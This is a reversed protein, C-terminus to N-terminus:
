TCPVGRRMKGARDPSEHGVRLVVAERREPLEGLGEVIRMLEGEHGGDDRHDLLIGREDELLGVRGLVDRRPVPRSRPDAVGLQGLDQVGGGVVEPAVLRLALLDGADLGSELGPNVRLRPLRRRGLGRRLLRRAPAERSRRSGIRDCVKRALARRPGGRRSAVAAPVNHLRLRRRRGGRPRVGSAPRLAAVRDDVPPHTSLYAGMGKGGAPELARLREFLRLAGEPDFGAARTLLVALADAELEQERSYARELWELGIRHLWPAIVGRGPTLISAASYATQRLVRKVAHRRVVHAMEHAVVFALEDRDRGCLDALSATLFIFGGPLAYATPQEDRVVGVEFRHLRNRVVGALATVTRDLQARLAPDAEVGSKERVVAAMDAGVGHEAEIAKDDDGTLSHWVWTAKRAKRGALRGIRYFVSGDPESM